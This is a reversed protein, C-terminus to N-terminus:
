RDFLLATDIATEPVGEPFPMPMGFGTIIEQGCQPCAFIDGSWYTSPYGEAPRDKVLIENKTCKMTCRCLVCIPQLSM